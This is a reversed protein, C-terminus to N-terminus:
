PMPVGPCQRDLGASGGTTFIRTADFGYIKANAAVWRLACLCAEVAAPAQFFRALRYEVNVANWGM